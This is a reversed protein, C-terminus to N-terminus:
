PTARGSSGGAGMARGGDEALARLRGNEEELTKVRARLEDHLHADESSSGTRGWFKSQSRLRRENCAPPCGLQAAM